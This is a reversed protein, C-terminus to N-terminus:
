GILNSLIDNTETDDMHGSDSLYRFVAIAEDKTKARIHALRRFTFRERETSEVAPDGVGDVAARMKYLRDWYALEYLCDSLTHPMLDTRATFRKDVEAQDFKWGRERELGELAEICLQEVPTSAFLDEGFRASAEQQNSLKVISRKALGELDSFGFSAFTAAFSGPHMATLHATYRKELEALPTKIRSAGLMAKEILAAQGTSIVSRLWLLADVEKDGTVDKQPPLEPVTLDTSTSERIAPLTFLERHKPNDRFEGSRSCITKVTGLPLATMEAVKSLSHTRRLDLVQRRLQDPLQIAM